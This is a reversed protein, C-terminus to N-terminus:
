ATHLPQRHTASILKYYYLLRKHLDFKMDASVATYPQKACLTYKHVSHSNVTAVVEESLKRCQAFTGIYVFFNPFIFYVIHLSIM